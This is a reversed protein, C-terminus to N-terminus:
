GQGGVSMRARVAPVTPAGCVLALLGGLTWWIWATSRSVPAVTSETTVPAAQPAAAEPAQATDQGSTAPAETASDDAGETETETPSAPRPGTATQTAM